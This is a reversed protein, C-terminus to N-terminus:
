GRSLVKVLQEVTPSGEVAVATRYLRCSLGIPDREDAFPDRGDILVSPSGRFAWAQAEEPTSILVREVKAASAVTDLAERLRADALQWNPCGEFYLLQIRM